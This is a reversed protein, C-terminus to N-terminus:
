ETQEVTWVATNREEETIHGFEEMKNLVIAQRESNLQPNKLPSYVEPAKPLSALIATEKLTLSDEATLNKDFYLQAAEALGYTGHGFYITNLYMELIEDKTYHREIQLAMLMEKVKRGLSKDQTLFQNKVLQMTITSGGQAFSQTKLDILLARTLSIPDVGFHYDFRHDEISVFAQPVYEPLQTLPVYNEEKKLADLQALQEDGVLREGAITILLFTALLLLGPIMVWKWKYSSKRSYRETRSGINEKLHISRTTM